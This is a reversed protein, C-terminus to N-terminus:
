ARTRAPLLLYVLLSGNWITHFSIYYTVLAVKEAIGKGESWIRPLRRFKGIMRSGFLRFGPLGRINELIKSEERGRQRARFIQSIPDEPFDHLIKAKTLIVDYGAAVFRHHFESDVNVQIDERFGGLALLVEKRIAMNKTDMGWYQQARVSELKCGRLNRLCLHNPGMSAAAGDNLIPRIIEALWDRDAVCDSDTFAIIDAKAEKAGLNRCFGSGRNEFARIFHIQGRDAYDSLKEPTGDDSCDDVFIIEYEEFKQTLLSNALADLHNIDNYIPVVISARPHLSTVM